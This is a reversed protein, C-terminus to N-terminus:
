VTAYDCNNETKVFEVLGQTENEILQDRIKANHQELIESKLKELLVIEVALKYGNRLFNLTGQRVPQYNVYVSPEHIFKLAIPDEGNVDVYTHVGKESVFHLTHTAKLNSNFCAEYVVARKGIHRLTAWPKNTM